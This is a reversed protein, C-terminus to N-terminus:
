AVRVARADRVRLRPSEDVTSRLAVIVQEPRGSVKSRYMAHDAANMAARYGANPSAHAVGVATTVTVPVAAGPVATPVQVARAIRAAFATAQGPRHGGPILVMFEDGGLRAVLHGALQARLRHAIARLLQDGARHGYTDNVPKFGNLDLMYLTYGEGYKAQKRLKRRLGARNVLGTLADTSAERRAADVQPQRMLWGLAFAGAAATAVAAKRM